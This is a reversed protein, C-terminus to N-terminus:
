LSLYYIEAEMKVHGEGQTETDFRGRKERILGGTMPDLAWGLGM